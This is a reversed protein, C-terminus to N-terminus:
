DNLVFEKNLVFEQKDTDFTYFHKSPVPEDHAQMWDWCAKSVRRPLHPLKRGPRKPDIRRYPPISFLPETKANIM